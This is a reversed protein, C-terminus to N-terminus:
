RDLSDFMHVIELCCTDFVLPVVIQFPLEHLVRIEGCMEFGANTDEHGKSVYIVTQDGFKEAVIECFQSRYGEHGCKYCITPPSRCSARAHGPVNCNFCRRRWDHPLSKPKSRKTRKASISSEVIAQHLPESVKTGESGPFDSAVKYRKSESTPEILFSIEYAVTQDQYEKVIAHITTVRVVDGREDRRGSRLDGVNSM